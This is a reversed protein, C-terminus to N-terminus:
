LRATNRRTLRPVPLLFSLLLFAEQWFCPSRLAPATISNRSAICTRETTRSRPVLPLGWSRFARRPSFARCMAGVFRHRWLDACSPVSPASRTVTKSGESECRITRTILELWANHSLKGWSWLWVAKTSVRSEPGGDPRGTAHSGCYLSDSFDPPRLGWNNSGPSSM